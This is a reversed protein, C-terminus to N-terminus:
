NSALKITRELLGRIESQLRKPEPFLTKSYLWHTKSTGIDVVPIGEKDEYVRITGERLIRRMQDVGILDGQVGSNKRPRLDSLYLELGDKTGRLETTQYDNSYFILRLSKNPTTSDAQSLRQRWAIVVGSAAVIVGVILLVVQWILGSIVIAQGVGGAAGIVVVVLGAVIVALPTNKSISEVIRDM